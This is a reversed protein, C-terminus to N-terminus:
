VWGIAASRSALARREHHSGSWRAAAKGVDRVLDSSSRRPWSARAPSEASARETGASVLSSGSACCCGAAVASGSTPVKLEGTRADQLAAEHLQWKRSDIQRQAFARAGGDIFLQMWIELTLLQWIQM